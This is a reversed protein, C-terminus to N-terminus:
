RFFGPLTKSQLTAGTLGDFMEKASWGSLEANDTLAQQFLVLDQFEAMVRGTSSDPTLTFNLNTTKGGKATVLTTTDRYGLASCTLSYDGEQLSLISYGGMEDASALLSDKLFIYAPTITTGNISMVAGSLQGITEKPETSSKECRVYLLLSSFCLFGAFIKKM